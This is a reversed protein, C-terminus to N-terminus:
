GISSLRFNVCVEGAVYYLDSSALPNTERSIPIGIVSGSGEIPTAAVLLIFAFFAILIDICIMDGQQSPDWLSLCRISGLSDRIWVIQWHAELLM